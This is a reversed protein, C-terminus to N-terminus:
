SNQSATSDRGKAKEKQMMCGYEQGCACIHTHMCVCVCVSVCVSKVLQMMNKELSGLLLPDNQM